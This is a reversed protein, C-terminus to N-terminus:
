NHHSQFLLNRYGNLHVFSPSGDFQIKYITSPNYGKGVSLRIIWQFSIDAAQRVSHDVIDKEVGELKIKITITDANERIVTFNEMTASLDERMCEKLYTGVSGIHSIKGDKIM